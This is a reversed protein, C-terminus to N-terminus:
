RQRRLRRARRSVAAGQRTAELVAGLNDVKGLASTLRVVGAKAVAPPPAIEELTSRELAALVGETAVTHPCVCNVRVGHSEAGGVLALVAGALSDDGILRLIAECVEQVSLLTATGRRGTRRQESRPPRAFV